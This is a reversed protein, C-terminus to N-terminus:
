NEKTNNKNAHLIIAVSVGEVDFWLGDRINDTRRLLIENIGNRTRYQNTAYWTYINYANHADPYKDNIICIDGKKPRYTAPFFIQQVNRHKQKLLEDKESQTLLSDFTKHFPNDKEIAKSCIFSQCVLPRVPYITCKESKDTHTDLFPCFDDITATDREPTRWQGDRNQPKIRNSKIYKKIRDIDSKVLPLMYYCCGGCGSCIGDKHYDPINPAKGITNM